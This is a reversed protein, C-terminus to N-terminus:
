NNWRNAETYATYGTSDIGNGQMGFGGADIFACEVVIHCASDGLTGTNAADATLDALLTAAPLVVLGGADVTYSATGIDGDMEIVTVDADGSAASPNGITMGFWWGQSGDLAVAYPYYLDTSPAAAACTEVFEAIQRDDTFILGCPLRWLEVTVTVAQGATAVAPDFVISPLVVRIANYLDIGGFATSTLEVFRDEPDIEACGVGNAGAGPSVSTETEATFGVAIPTGAVDCPDETPLYGAVLAGVNSFYAGNGSIRAVIRFEDGPFYYTGSNNQLILSQGAFDCYNTGTDYNFTCVATQGGELPVYEWLDGKCAELTISEAAQLHAVQPNSPNFTLFNNGSIGGSNISVDITSGGYVDTDVNICYTNDWDNSFQLLDAPLTDGYFGNSTAPTGSPTDNFAWVGASPGSGDHPESDFLKIQFEVDNDVTLTSTGDYNSADGVGGAGLNDSDYVDIRIRTAGSSGRVRFFIGSTGAVTIGEAAGSNGLDKISWLDNDLTAGDAPAATTVFAGAGPVVGASVGLIAFDFDQCLTVGIPLDATIWDGDQFITGEDFILTINGAKECAGEAGTVPESNTKVEVQFAAMAITTVGFVLFLVSLAAIFKRMREEKVKLNIKQYM